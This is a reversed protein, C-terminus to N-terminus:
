DLLSLVKNNLDEDLLPMIKGTEWKIKPILLTDPDLSMNILCPENDEFWGKYENLEKYSPITAAKIGYAEAIRQFDPVSYGSAATTQAYRDQYSGHQIESIKGLVHNNIVIIKIPLNERHVTELEQINMQLGGDGTICYVIGKNRSISAGIAYPLGCGMSGYSGGIMIRGEHGKLALSQAVWCQHQGIDIACIPNVPLLEGIAEVADNGETNDYKALMNKVALCREKWESCDPFEAVLLTTMFAKADM